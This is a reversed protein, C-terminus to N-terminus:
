LIRKQTTYTFLAYCGELGAFTATLAQLFGCAKNRASSVPRLVQWAKHLSWTAQRSVWPALPKSCAGGCDLSFGDVKLGLPDTSTHTYCWLFPHVSATQAHVIFTLVM